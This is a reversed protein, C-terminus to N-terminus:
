KNEKSTDMTAWASAPMQKLESELRQLDADPLTGTAVHFKSEDRPLWHKMDYDDFVTSKPKDRRLALAAIITGTALGCAGGLLLALLIM